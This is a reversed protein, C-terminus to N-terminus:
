VIMVIRWVVCGEGREKERGRDRERNREGERGQRVRRPGDLQAQLSPACLDYVDLLVPFSVKQVSSSLPYLFAFLLFIWPLVPSMVCYM